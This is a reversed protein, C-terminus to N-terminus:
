LLSFDDKPLLIFDRDNDNNLPITYYLGSKDNFRKVDVIDKFFWSYIRKRWIFFIFFCIMYIWIKEGHLLELVMLVLDPFALVM